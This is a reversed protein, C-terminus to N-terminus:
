RVLTVHGNWEKSGDPFEISVRWIYVESQAYYELDPSDGNWGEDPDNTTYVMDGWRNFVS